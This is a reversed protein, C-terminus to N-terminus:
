CVFMDIMGAFVFLLRWNPRRSSIFVTPAALLAVFVCTTRKFTATSKSTSNPANSRLLVSCVFLLQLRSDRQNKLFLLWCFLVVFYKYFFFFFKDHGIKKKKKPFFVFWCFFCCSAQRVTSKRTKQLRKLQKQRVARVRATNKRRLLLSEPKSPSCFCCSFTFKKHCNKKENQNKKANVVSFTNNFLLRFRNFSM